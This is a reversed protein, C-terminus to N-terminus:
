FNFTHSNSIGIALPLRTRTFRGEVEVGSSNSKKSRRTQRKHDSTLCRGFPSDDFATLQLDRALGALHQQDVMVLVGPAAGFVDVPDNFQKATLLQSSFSANKRARRPRQWESSKETITSSMVANRSTGTSPTTKPYANQKSEPDSTGYTFFTDCGEVAAHPM